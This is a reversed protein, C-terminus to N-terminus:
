RSRCRSSRACARRCRRSAATGRSALSTSWRAPRRRTSTPSSGQTSRSRTQQSTITPCSPPTPFSVVRAGEISGRPAHGAITVAGEWEALVGALIKLLTTKGSGNDGMLGVIQGPQLDHNLNTLAPRGRYAKTLGIVEIAPPSSLTQQETMLHGKPEEGPSTQTAWLRELLETTERMGMGLGHATAVLADATAAASRRLAGGRDGDDDSTVCRGATREPITLGLRDVEGLAKQVTNPNVGFELALERVSPVKLGQELWEGSAIRRGSSTSSSRGSPGPDDLQM